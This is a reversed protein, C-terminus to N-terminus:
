EVSEAQEIWGEVADSFREGAELSDTLLDETPLEVESRKHVDRVDGMSRHLEDHVAQLGSGDPPHLRGLDEYAVEFAVTLCPQDQDISCRDAENALRALVLEVDTLYDELGDGASDQPQLGAHLREQLREALLTVADISAPRAMTGYGVIAFVRDVRLVISVDFFIAEEGTQADLVYEATELGISDSEFPPPLKRVEVNVVDFREFEAGVPLHSGKETSEVHDAVSLSLWERFFDTAVGTSRFLWISVDSTFPEAGSFLDDQSAKNNFYHGIYLSVDPLDTTEQYDLIFGEPLDEETLALSVLLEEDSSPGGSRVDDILPPVSDGDFPEPTRSGGGADSGGCAGLLVALGAATCALISRFRM